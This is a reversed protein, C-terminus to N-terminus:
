VEGRGSFRACGNLPVTDERLFRSTGYMLPYLSPHVLDLVKGDSGPHWDKLADRVNELPAVGLRLAMKTEHSVATDSIYVTANADFVETFGRSESVPAQARM